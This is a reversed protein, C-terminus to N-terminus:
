NSYEEEQKEYSIDSVPTKFVKGLIEDEAALWDLLAYGPLFGRQKARYYAAENAMRAYKSPDIYFKRRAKPYVSIKKDPNSDNNV